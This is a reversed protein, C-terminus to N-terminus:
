AQKCYDFEVKIIVDVKHNFSLLRDECCLLASFQKHSINVGHM